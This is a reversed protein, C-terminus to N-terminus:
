HYHDVLNRSAMDWLVTTNMTVAMHLEYRVHSTALEQAECCLMVYLFGNEDKSPFTPFYRSLQLMIAPGSLM